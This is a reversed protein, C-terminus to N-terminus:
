ASALPNNWRLGPFRAFGRDNTQLEGGYEITLAAIEADTVLRGSVNGELMIRKLIAWHREGPVLMRVQPLTLWEDALTVAERITYPARLVGRQTSIRLFASLSQFPIGIPGPASFITELYVRAAPHNASAQDYSYLLLNADLVIM